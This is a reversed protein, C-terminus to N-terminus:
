NQVLHPNTKLSKKIRRLADAFFLASVLMLGTVVHYLDSVENVQSVPAPHGASQISLQYREISVWICFGVNLAIMFLNFAFYLRERSAKKQIQNTLVLPVEVSIVWYKFAFLWHLLNTPLNFLLTNWGILRAVFIENDAHYTPDTELALGVSLFATGVDAILCLLILWKMFAYMKHKFAYHLVWCMVVSLISMEIVTMYMGIEDSTRMNKDWLSGM